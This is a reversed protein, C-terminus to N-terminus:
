EESQNKNKEDGVLASENKRKRIMLGLWGVIYIVTASVLFLCIRAGKNTYNSDKYISQPAFVDTSDNLRMCRDMYKYTPNHIRVIAKGDQILREQLLEGDLFIWLNLPTDRNISEDFEFTIVSAHDILSCAHLYGEASLDINFLEVPYVNGEYNIQMGGDVCSMSQATYLVNAEFLSNLLVFAVFLIM